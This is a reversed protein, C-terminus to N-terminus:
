DSTFSVLIQRYSSLLGSKSIFGVFTGNEDEVPLNWAKTEEFKAAVVKMTDTTLLVAPPEEMFNSVLYRHYLEPRFIYKRVKDLYVVGVLAGSKDVVPFINRKSESIASVLKGLDMEPNVSKYNREILASVSMLTLVASDKDHTLLEGKKALRMAYISHPEFINITLYSVASVIMIPVFLQYGGTLEAILFIGTLPAHMVGSMLGAMGYLAFNKTSLPSYMGGCINWLCSFVYGAVCGMFLSPAFVGGCGGGGNTATSAFSKFILVLALYLLLTNETDYFISNHMITSADANNILQAIVDYGEGYMVPFLFILVGLVSAGVVFKIWPNRLGAFIGEFWNMSRIFYLSVLGCFVGLMICAPIAHISFVRDISFSFMSETGYFAYSVCTSTVCTVLLPLLSAMNLDLMLVELVFVLGAIPAKFIGAVAGAAGCGVLLLLTNPRLHFRRGIESGIASGTLVIPAEAGVSGGFGITISSAFISSFMNHTKIRAKKQSIAYLIKTVGHSIDDKVIYRVFLSTLLIGVAPYLLYLGNINGVSFGATLFIKIEEVLYKLLVAALATLVGVLLSLILILRKESNHRKIWETFANLYYLRKKRNAISMFIM